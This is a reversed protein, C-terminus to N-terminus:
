GRIGILWSRLAETIEAPSDEQVFHAGPVTVETQHPWSRCYDRMAGVLIGGPEVNLFLKPVTSQEMWRAYAGLIEVVDSPEGDLPMERTWTLLPRRDEGARLFPRRFEAMEEETLKRLTSYPLLKEILINETLALTEGQEGRLTAFMQRAPWEQSSMPRVIGEAYAIGLIADPHRRAWDFALASGWDHGVLTVRSAVDLKQLLRELYEIQAVFRYDDSDVGPLKESDGMGPLDPVIVRGLDAPQPAINRWLFSSTPNGHLLVIPDGEGFEAYAISAGDVDVTHKSAWTM